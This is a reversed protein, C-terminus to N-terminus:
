MILLRCANMKSRPLVCHMRCLSLSTVSLASSFAVADLTPEIVTRGVAAVTLSANLSWM